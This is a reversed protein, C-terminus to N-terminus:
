RMKSNRLQSRSDRRPGRGDGDGDDSGGRGGDDDDDDDHGRGDDRSDESTDSDTRKKSESDRGSVHRGSAPSVADNAGSEDSNSASDSDPDSHRGGRHWDGRGRRDRRRRRGGM